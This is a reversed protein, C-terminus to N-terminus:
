EIVHKHRGESRTVLSVMACKLIAVPERKQRDARRKGFTYLSVATPRM